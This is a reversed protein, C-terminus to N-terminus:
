PSCTFFCQRCVPEYLEFGGIKIVNVDDHERRKTFVAERTVGDREFCETCVATKREVEDSLCVVRNMNEFPNRSFDSELGAFYMHLNGKREWCKVFAAADDFFQTEDVLVVMLKAGGNAKMVNFVESSLLHGVSMAKAKSGNHTQIYHGSDYRAEDHRHKLCLIFTDPLISYKERLRLLEGSKCAGMPGVISKVYACRGDVAVDDM